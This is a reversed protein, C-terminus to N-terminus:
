KGAKIWRQITKRDVNFYKAADQVSNFEQGKVIITRTRGKGSGRSHKSELYGYIKGMLEDNKFKITDSPNNEELKKFVSKNVVVVKRINKLKQYSEEALSKWDNDTMDENWITRMYVSAIQIDDWDEKLMLTIFASNYYTNWKSKLDYFLCLKSIDTKKITKTEKVIDAIYTKFINLTKDIDAGNERYIHNLVKNLDEILNGTVVKNFMTTSKVYLNGNSEKVMNDDFRIMQGAFQNSRMNTDGNFKIDNLLEVFNVEFSAERMRNYIVQLQKEYEQVNKILKYTIYNPEIITMSQWNVCDIALKYRLKLFSNNRINFIDFEKNTSALVDIRHKADELDIDSSIGYM